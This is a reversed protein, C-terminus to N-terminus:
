AGGPAASLRALPAGTLRWREWGSAPAAGLTAYFGKGSDNWDLVSWELRSGGRTVTIQALRALLARGIGRARYDPDVFLDELWLGPLGEFTSFTPYFLAFGAPHADCEAILVEAAPHAGFLHRELVAADFRVEHALKEYEALKRIFGAILALDDATAARVAIM